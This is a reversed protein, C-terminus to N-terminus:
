ANTDRANSMLRRREASSLRMYNPVATAPDVTRGSHYHHWALATVLSGRTRNHSAPLFHVQKGFASVLEQQFRFAGDGVAIFRATMGLHNKLSEVAAGIFYDGNLRPYPGSCDYIGAYVEGRQAPLLAAVPVSSFVVNAALVDLASVAILPLGSSLALGKATALGIRLGTFSGPGEVVAVATCDALELEASELVAAIAPMLSESHTKRVNVTHEALLKEETAVAVTCVTTSTDFGLIAM